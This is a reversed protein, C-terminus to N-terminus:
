PKIKFVFITPGLRGEEDVRYIMEAYKKLWGLRTPVEEDWVAEEYDKAMGFTGFVLYEVGEAKLKEALSAELHHTRELESFSKLYYRDPRNDIGKLGERSELPPEYDSGQAITSGAPINENIWELAVTRSDKKLVIQKNLMALYLPGVFFLLCLIVNIVRRKDTRLSTHQEVKGLLSSFTVGALLSLYPMTPLLFHPQFYEFGGVYLYYATPFVSLLILSWHRKIFANLVGVVASVLPLFGMADMLVFLRGRIKELYTIGGSNGPRTFQWMAGSPNETNLFTHYEFLANPTGLFFGFLSTAGSIVLKRFEALINKKKVLVSLMFAVLLTIVAFGGNYKTSAALGALLGALMYSALSGLTVVRFCFYLSFTLWFLMPIDITALRTNTLFLSNLLLLLASFLAARKTFFHKGILYVLGVTLAGYLVTWLRGLFYFVINDNWLLPFQTRTFDELGVARIFGRGKIFITFSFSDLYTQLHPWDFHELKVEYQSVGLADRIIVPEDPHYLHPFGWTVGFLNLIFSVSVLLLFPKDRTLKQLFKTNKCFKMTM